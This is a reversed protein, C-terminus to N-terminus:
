SRVRRSAKIGFPSDAAVGRTPKERNTRPASLEGEIERSVGKGLKGAIEEIQDLTQPTDPLTAELQKRYQQVPADIVDNRTRKAPM